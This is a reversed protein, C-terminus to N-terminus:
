VESKGRKRVSCRLMDTFTKWLAFHISKLDRLDVPERVTMKWISLSLFLDLQVGSMIATGVIRGLGEYVFPTGHTSFLYDDRGYEAAEQTFNPTHSFFPLLDVDHLEQMVTRFLERYLGGNDIGGEGAFVVHFARRQGGHAPHIYGIRLTSPPLRMVLRIFAGTTSQNWRTPEENSTEESGAHNSIGIPLQRLRDPRAGLRNFQYTKVEPPLATVDENLTVPPRLQQIRLSAILDKTTALLYPRISLFPEM